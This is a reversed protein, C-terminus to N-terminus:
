SGQNRLHELLEPHKQLYVSAFDVPALTVPAFGTKSTINTIVERAFPYLLSPCQINLISDVQEPEVNLLFIGAYQLEIIFLAEKKANETSVDISITVEYLTEEAQSKFESINIDIKSVINSEELDKIFVNPAQPVELSLDKVYQNIINLPPLLQQQEQTEEQTTQKKDTKKDTM